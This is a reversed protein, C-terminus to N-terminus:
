SHLSSCHGRSHNGSFRGAIILCIALTRARSFRQLAALTYNGFCGRWHTCAPHSSPRPPTNPIPTATACHCQPSAAIHRMCETAVRKTHRACDTLRHHLDSRSPFFDICRAICFRCAATYQGEMWLTLSTSYHWPVTISPNCPTSPEHASKMICADHHTAGPDDGCPKAM